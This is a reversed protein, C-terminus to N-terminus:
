KIPIVKASKKIIGAKVGLEGIAIGFDYWSACGSDSWHFITSHELEKSVCKWCAEALTLTSTPSGFQDSVIFLPESRESKISHLKLMTTLFNRGKPGYLWSTRIVLTNGVKLSDNEGKAKTSGYANIPNTKQNPAYPESQEGDFVYDTSIQILRGNTDSM